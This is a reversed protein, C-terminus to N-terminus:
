FSFNPNVHVVTANVSTVSLWTTLLPNRLLLQGCISLTSNTLCSWFWPKITHSSPHTLRSQCLASFESLLSAVSRPLLSALHWLTPHRTYLLSRSGWPSSRIQPTLFTSCILEIVLTLGAMNLLCWLFQLFFNWYEFVQIRTLLLIQRFLYWYILAAESIM